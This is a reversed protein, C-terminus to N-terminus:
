LQYGYRETRELVRRGIASAELHALPPPPAHVRSNAGVLQKHIRPIVHRVRAMLDRDDHGAFGAYAWVDTINDAFTEVKCRMPARDDALKTLALWYRARELYTMPLAHRPMYDYLEPVTQEMWLYDPARLVEWSAIVDLPNRVIHLWEGIAFDDRRHTMWPPFTTRTRPEGTWQWAAIARDNSPETVVFEHGSSIGLAKLMLACYTTGSRPAGIMALKLRSYDPDIVTM